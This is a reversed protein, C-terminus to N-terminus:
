MQGWASAAVFDGSITIADGVGVEINFSPFATGYWYKTTATSSPYLYMKVAEQGNVADYLADSTDDFFGEVSGKLDKIGVVYTKNTDGFATVEITDVDMNISWKSLSAVAVATGSATTSMYVVANKGSYRAM